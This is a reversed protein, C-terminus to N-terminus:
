QTRVGRYIGYHGADSPDIRSFSCGVRQFWTTHAFKTNVVKWSSGVEKLNVEVGWKGSNLGKNDQLPDTTSYGSQGM